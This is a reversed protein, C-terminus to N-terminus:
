AEEEDAGKRRAILIVGALLAVAAIGVIWVWSTGSSSAEGQTTVPRLSFYSANTSAFLYLGEENDPSASWSAPDFTDTRYASLDNWYNLVMTPIEEALMIQMEQVTAVRDERDLQTRQLEYLEDYAPNTYCGDAWVLCQDTTFVSLQFDPDAESDGGWYWIYADFDGLEWLELAKPSSVASLTSGIQLDTLYGRMLKGTDVSGKVGVISLVELDINEGDVGNRIGDGDSDVYGAQDLMANAAEPDYDFQLDEPIDAHWSAFRGPPLVSYGLDATGQYVKDIIEQRDVGMSVAQRFATDRITPDATASEGQGGFNWALSSWAAADGSRLEIDPEGELSNYLSPSVDGAYDIEGSRLAQVMAEANQFFTFVVEDIAPVEGWYDRNVELRMYQSPKYEALTFPGSGIAEQNAFERVAQQSAAEDDEDILEGWIHEPVIPLYPPIDPAYTPKPSTWVVTTEDTAEFTPGFPLYGKYIGIKSEIVLNFSFAVDVATLPEGDHFTAGDVIKLTWETKDANPTWEEVILPAASLDDQDYDWATDYVLSIYEYDMVCCINGYPNLSNIEDVIGVNLTLKEDTAGDTADQAGASGTLALAGALAGSLAVAVIRETVKM